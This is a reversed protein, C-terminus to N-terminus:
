RNKPTDGKNNLNVLMTYITNFYSCTKYQNDPNKKMNQYRIM